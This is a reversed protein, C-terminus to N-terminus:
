SMVKNFDVKGEVGDVHASDTLQWIKIDDWPAPVKVNDFSPTYWALWLPYKKFHETTKIVDRAFYFSTYIIPVLGTEEEIVQLFILLDSTHKPAKFKNQIEEIDLVPPLGSEIDVHKLFYNAQAVPDAKVEYYHYAGWPTTGIAKLQAAREKYVSSILRVGQTAKMYIFDVNNALIELNVDKNHHSIDVGVHGIGLVDKVERPPTPRPVSPTIVVAPPTSMPPNCRRKVYEVIKYFLKKFM